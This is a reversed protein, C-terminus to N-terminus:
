SVYFMYVKLSYFFSYFGKLLFPCGWAGNTLLDTTAKSSKGM